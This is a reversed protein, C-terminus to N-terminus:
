VKHSAKIHSLWAKEYATVKNVDVRDIFGKVGAYLIVVQGHLFFFLLVFFLVFFLFLLFLLFFLPPFPHSCIITVCFAVASLITM